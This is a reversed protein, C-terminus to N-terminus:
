PAPERAGDSVAGGGKRPRGRRRPQPKGSPTLLKELSAYTVLRRRGVHVSELTGDSVLAWLTTNSLGSIKRASQITVTLPRDTDSAGVRVQTKAVGSAEPSRDM